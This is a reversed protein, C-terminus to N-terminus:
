SECRDLINADAVNIQFIKPDWEEMKNKLGDIQTPTLDVMHDSVFSSMKNSAETVPKLVEGLEASLKTRQDKLSNYTEELEHFNYEQKHGDPFVVAAKEKKYEDIDQQKSKKASASTGTELQYTLANVYARRDTFVNQVALIRASLDTIQKQLEDRRPRATESADKYAQELQQYQPNEEVEKVSQTSKSRTSNLFASYRIKWVHQLAKWPRQGFSEDWLAWFLTLMLIMMAIVYCAAYSKSVIPDKEPVPPVSDEL